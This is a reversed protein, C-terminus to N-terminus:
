LETLVVGMKSHKLSFSKARGTLRDTKSRSQEWPMSLHAMSATKKSKQGSLHTGNLRDDISEKYYIWGLPPNWPVRPVVRFGGSHGHGKVSYTSM